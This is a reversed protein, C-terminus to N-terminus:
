LAVNCQCLLNSLARQREADLSGLLSSLQGSPLSRSLAALSNAFVPAADPIADILPCRRPPPAVRLRWFSGAPEDDSGPAFIEETGEGGAAAEGLGGAPLSTLMTIITAIIAILLQAFEADGSIMAPCECAFKTLGLVVLKRDHRDRIKTAQPLLLSSMVLVILKPQLAEFLRVIEAAPQASRVSLVFLSLFLLLHLSLRPAKTTQLRKLIVMLIGGLYGEMQTIPLSQILSSLLGFAHVDHVKSGLLTQFIGLVQPLYDNATVFYQGDRVICAQLFRALAPINESCTWLAPLLVPGVMPAVSPSLGSGSQAEVFIAYLQFVYHIFESVDKQLIEQLVPLLAAEIKQAGLPVCACYRVMAAACEFLSHNFVPNSPNAAVMAILACVSRLPGDLIPLLTEKQAVILIRLLARIMFENESIKEPRGHYHLTKIIATIIPDAVSSVDAATFVAQGQRRGALIRDIAIAAYTHVVPHHSGLHHHLLPFTAVLQEKELQSRFDFLFKIADVKLLPHLAANALQLDPLINRAFFEQINTLPNVRTVGLAAVAGRIAIASFLSVAANKDRWKQSPATSYIKLFEDVYSQLIATVQAEYFEMLGRALGIAGGRRGEEETTGEVSRRIYELPEDEFLELDAERILVNPVIVKDCLLQLVGAFLSKHKEQKAVTSLLRMCAGVTADHKPARSVSTLVGWAAEVFQGLMTFDEEYRTAYLIAIKAVSAPLKEAPGAEEDGATEAASNRYSLHKKLVEMFEGLHDEFFAPLDQASLSFFIKNLLIQTRLLKDLIERNNAHSELLADTSRFMQLLAEALHKMVYNIETYLEDSRFETRYRKFMRHLTKLIAVNNDHAVPDLRQVMQLLLDPWAEPFDIAAILTVAECIQRQIGSPVRTLLPILQAKIALRDQDTLSVTPAEMSWHRRVFNKFMLAAAMRVHQELTAFSGEVIALLLLPFHTTSLELQKLADEAQRQTLPNLTQTLLLVVSQLLSPDLSPPFVRVCM